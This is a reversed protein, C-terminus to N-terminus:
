GHLSKMWNLKFGKRPLKLNSHRALIATDDAYTATTVGDTNPLDATYLTYLNPGLVSGQPVGANIDYFGSRADEEKVQYMRGELYSKLIPFFTAPLQSKIKYLLGKHWVRDFAQQIDLFVASCYEKQELSYRITNFVRHVQEITSHHQRFGFQHNPIIKLDDLVPVLRSLLIKECVKSLVPLLSIPRYSTALNAPKGIKHVMVIQSVKWHYPYYSIRMIANIIFTILVVAKRPLEKLIRPTILDYGPASKDKLDQIVRHVERPSALKLQPSLSPLDQELLQDISKEDTNPAADNPSFVAELHKAFTDAKEKSSRAWNNDLTKIPPKPVQPQNLHKTAKWLSYHTVKHASLSEVHMQFKEEQSEKIAKKLELCAKNFATKDSPHRSTHWKSRLRRKEEIQLKLETTPTNNYSRMYSLEPTCKWAAEQILWSLNKTADEVDYPCKLPIKLNINDNIYDRFSAWDTKGNHLTLNSQKVFASTAITLLVPSHDSSSDLCSRIDLYTTSIGKVVFFDLM